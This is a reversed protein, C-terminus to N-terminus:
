LIIRTNPFGAEDLVTRLLNRMAKSCAKFEALPSAAMTTSNNPSEAHYKAEANIFAASAKAYDQACQKIRDTLMDDNSRAMARYLELSEVRYIKSYDLHDTLIAEGQSTIHLSFCVVAGDTHCWVTEIRTDESLNRQIALEKM